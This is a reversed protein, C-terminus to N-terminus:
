FSSLFFDLRFITAVHGTWNCSTEFSIRLAFIVDLKQVDNVCVFANEQSPRNRFGYVHIHATFSLEQKV